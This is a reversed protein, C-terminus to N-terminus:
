AVEENTRGHRVFDLAKQSVIVDSEKIPALLHVGEMTRVRSLATYLQGAAFCSPDINLSDFTMGQVKHITLAYGLLLPYGVYTTGENTFVQQRKVVIEKGKTTEITISNKSIKKIVGRTGNVYPIMGLKNPKANITVVVKAGIKVTLKEDLQFMEGPLTALIEQNKRNVKYYHAYVYLEEIDENHSYILNLTKVVRRDGERNRSLLSDYARNSQRMNQNLEVVKFDFLNYYPSEFFFTKEVSELQLPDGSLILQITRNYRNKMTQIAQCVNSFVNVDLMAIEDIIITDYNRLNMEVVFTVQYEEKPRIGFMHHVTCGHQEQSASATSACFGVRKGDNRMAEMIHQLTFSKGCGGRAIIALNHGEMALNYINQQESNMGKGVVITSEEHVNLLTSNNECITLSQMQNNTKNKLHRKNGEFNIDEFRITRNTVGLRERIRISTIKAIGLAKGIKADSLGSLYLRVVEKDIESAANNREKKGREKEEKEKWGLNKFEDDNLNLFKQVTEYKRFHYQNQLASNLLTILEEEELPNTLTNNLELIDVIISEKVKDIVDELRIFHYKAYELETKLCAILFLANNRTLSGNENLYNLSQISFELYKGIQKDNVYHQYWRTPFIINGNQIYNPINNSPNNINTLINEKLPSTKVKEKDKEKEKEKKEEERKQLPSHTVEKADEVVIEDLRYLSILDELRYEYIENTTANGYRAVYEAFTESKSNYTGSIRIVRVVDIVSHDNEFVDLFNTLIENFKLYLKEWLALYIARNEKTAEIPKIKIFFGYGGGTMTVMPMGYDSEFQAELIQIIQEKYSHVEKITELSPVKKSKALNHIGKHDFDLYFGTLYALKEGVRYSPKMQGSKEDLKMLPTYNYPFTNLSCYCDNKKEESFFKSSNIYSCENNTLGKAEFWGVYPIPNGEKDFVLNGDKIVQAPYKRCVLVSGGISHKDRYDQRMADIRNQPNRLRAM